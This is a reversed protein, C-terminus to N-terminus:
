ESLSLVRWNHHLKPEANKINPLKIINKALLYSKHWFLKSQYILNDLITGKWPPVYLCLVYLPVNLYQLSTHEM